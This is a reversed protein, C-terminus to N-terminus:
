QCRCDPQTAAPNLRHGANSALPIDAALRHGQGRLSAAYALFSDEDPCEEANPPLQVFPGRVLRVGYKGRKAGASVDDGM